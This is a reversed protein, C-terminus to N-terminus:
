CGSLLKKLFTDDKFEARFFRAQSKIQKYGILFEKKAKKINMCNNVMMPFAEDAAAIGINEQQMRKDSGLFCAEVIVVEGPIFPKDYVPVPGQLEGPWFIKYATETSDEGRKHFVAKKSGDFMFYKETGTKIHFMRTFPMFRKTSVNYITLDDSFYDAGYTLLAKLTLTTKGSGSKGVFLFLRNQKVVGSAHFLLYGKERMLIQPLIQNFLVPVCHSEPLNDKYIIDRKGSCCTLSISGLNKNVCIHITYGASIEGLHEEQEDVPLCMQILRSVESIESYLEILIADIRFIMKM